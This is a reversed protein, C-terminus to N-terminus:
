SQKLGLLGPSLDLSKEEVGMCFVFLCFDAIATQSFRNSTGPLRLLDPGTPKDWVPDIYSGMLIKTPSCDHTTQPPRLNGSFLGLLPNRNWQGM